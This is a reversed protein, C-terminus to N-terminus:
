REKKNWGSARHIQKVLREMTWVIEHSVSRGEGLKDKLGCGMRIDEDRMRDQMAVRIPKLCSMEFITGLVAYSKCEIGWTRM